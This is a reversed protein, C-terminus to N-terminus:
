CCRYFGLKGVPAIPSQGVLGTEARDSRSLSTVMPTWWYIPAPADEMSGTFTPGAFEFLQAAMWFPRLPCSAVLVVAFGDDFEVAVGALALAVHRQCGVGGLWGM